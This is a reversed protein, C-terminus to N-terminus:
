KIADPLLSRADALGAQTLLERLATMAVQKHGGVNIGKLLAIYATM